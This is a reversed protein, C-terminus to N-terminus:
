TTFFGEFQMWSDEEEEEKWAFCTAPHDILLGGSARTFQHALDWLL